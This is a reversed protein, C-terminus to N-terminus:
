VNLCVLLPEDFGVVAERCGGFPDVGGTVDVAWQHEDMRYPVVSVEEIAVERVTSNM